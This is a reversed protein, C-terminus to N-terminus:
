VVIYQDQLTTSVANKYQDILQNRLARKSPNNVPAAANAWGERASQNKPRNPLASGAGVGGGIRDLNDRRVGGELVRQLSRGIEVAQALLRRFVALAEGAAGLGVQGAEDVRRPRFAKVVGRGAGRDVAM